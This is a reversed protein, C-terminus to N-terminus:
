NVAKSENNMAKEKSNKELEELVQIFKLTFKLDKIQLLAEARCIGSRITSHDLVGMLKGIQVLSIHFNRYLFMMAMFRMEVIESKRTKRSYDGYPVGLARSIMKMTGSQGLESTDPLEPISGNYKRSPKNIRKEVIKSRTYARLKVRIKLKWYILMEADRIIENVKENKKVM